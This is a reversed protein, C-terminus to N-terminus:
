LMKGQSDQYKLRYNNAKSENWLTTNRQVVPDKSLMKDIMATDPTDFYISDLHKIVTSEETTLGM